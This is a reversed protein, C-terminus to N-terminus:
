FEYATALSIYVGYESSHSRLLKSFDLNDPIVDTGSGFWASLGLDTKVHESIHGASLTFGYHDVHSTNEVLTSRADGSAFDTFFGARVPFRRGIVYEVGVSENFVTHRIVRRDLGRSAEEPNDWVTRPGLWIVDAALTWAGREWAAGFQVRFPLTPSASLSDSENIIVVPGNVDNRGLRNFASRKGGGLEPTFFSLGLRFTDSVDWRAGASAVVGLVNIDSRSTLVAFQNTGPIVLDLDLTGTSSGILGYIGAGVGFRGLRRAYGGGIWVTQAHGSSLFANASDGLQDRDDRSLADPIIVSFFLSHPVVGTQPDSAGLKQIAATDVPFIQPDRYDFDHGTGLANSISGGLLGYVSISLSVSSARAFALGGPNYYPGSGDDALATFAGGMGAARSGVLYPRFPQAKVVPHYLVAALLL